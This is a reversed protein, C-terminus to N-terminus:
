EIFEIQEKLVIIPKTSEYKMHNGNNLVIQLRLQIEAGEFPM